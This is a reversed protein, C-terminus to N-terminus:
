VRSNPATSLPIVRGPAILFLRRNPQPHVKHGGTFTGFAPLIACRDDFVFCPAIAVSGDFDPLHVMPHLHGAFTPLNPDCPQDHTLIIGDDNFPEEVEEMQWEKPICGSSRDHNGRILLMQIGSHSRRWTAFADLVEPQRGAKAHVLDGLIVLRRAGTQELLQTIRSLDKATGGEPVPVGLARFTASKGLHVDALLLTERAPWFIARDPLLHLYEGAFTTPHSGPLFM